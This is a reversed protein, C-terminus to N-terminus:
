ACSDSEFTRNEGSVQFSGCVVPEGPNCEGDQQEVIQGPSFGPRGPASAVNVVCYADGGETNTTAWCGAIFGGVAAIVALRVSDSTVAM